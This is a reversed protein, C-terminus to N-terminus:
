KVDGVDDNRDKAILELEDVFLRYLDNASLKKAGVEKLAQLTLRMHQYNRQERPTLKGALARRLKKLFRDDNLLVRQSIYTNITPCALVTQDIKVAALLAKESKKGDERVIAVLDNLYLGFIKLARFSLMLSYSFAYIAALSKRMEDKEEPNPEWADMEADFANLADQMFQIQNPSKSIQQIFEGGGLPEVGQAVHQLIPLEYLHSWAPKLCDPAFLREKSQILTNRAEVFEMDFAEALNLFLRLDESSLKGFNM